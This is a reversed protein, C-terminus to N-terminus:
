LVCFSSLPSNTEQVGFKSSLFYVFFTNDRVSGCSAIVEFHDIVLM